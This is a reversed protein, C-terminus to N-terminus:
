RVLIFSPYGRFANVGQNEVSWGDGMGSGDQWDDWGWGSPNTTSNGGAEDCWSFTGQYGNNTPDGSFSGIYVPYSQTSANSGYVRPSSGGSDNM